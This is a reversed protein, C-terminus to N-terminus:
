SHKDQIGERPYRVYAPSSSQKPSETLNQSNRNTTPTAM